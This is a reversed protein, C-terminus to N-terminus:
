YIQLQTQASNKVRPMMREVAKRLIQARNWKYLEGVSV